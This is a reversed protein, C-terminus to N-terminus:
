GDSGDAPVVRRFEPYRKEMCEPCIGHSLEAGSLRRVYTEVKDWYGQDNRIKKCYMCIPLIGELDEIQKMARRLDRVQEAMREQMEVMRRGVEIRARLEGADFPKTLYDDAGADLGAVIDAKEGRTTLMILYPRDESSTPLSPSAQRIRRVVELGDLGPMMWDLIALKPAEAKRLESWAESGDVAEVVEHGNKKLVAALMSRSTFDDEAILIRM